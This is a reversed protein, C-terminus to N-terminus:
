KSKERLQNRTVRWQDYDMWLILEGIWICASPIAACVLRLNNAKSVFFLGYYIVVFESAAILGALILWAVTKGYQAIGQKIRSRLDKWYSDYKQTM